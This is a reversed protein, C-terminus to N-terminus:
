WISSRIGAKKIYAPNCLADSAPHSIMQGLAYFFFPAVSFIIRIAEGSVCMRKVPSL